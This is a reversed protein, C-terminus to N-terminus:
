ISQGIISELYMNLHISDGEHQQLQLSNVENNVSFSIERMINILEESTIDRSKPPYNLALLNGEETPFYERGERGGNGLIFFRTVGGIKSEKITRLAVFGDEVSPTASSHGHTHLDFVIRSSVHLMSKHLQFFSSVSTEDGKIIYLELKSKPSDVMFFRFESDIKSLSFILEVLKNIDNLNSIDLKYVSNEPAEEFRSKFAGTNEVALNVIQPEKIIGNNNLFNIITEQEKESGVLTKIGDKAAFLVQSEHETDFVGLLLDLLKKKDYASIGEKSALSKLASVTENRIIAWKNLLLESKIFNPDLKDLGGRLVLSYAAAAYNRPVHTPYKPVFGKYNLVMKKLADFSKESNYFGLVEAANRSEKEDDVFLYKIIAEELKENEFVPNGERSNEFLHLDYLRKLVGAPRGLGRELLYTYEEIGEFDREYENINSYDPLTRVVVLALSNNGGFSRLFSHIYKKNKGELLLYDTAQRMMKDLVRGPSLESDVHINNNGSSKITMWLEIQTRIVENGGIAVLAAEIDPLFGEYSVFGKHSSFVLNGALIEKQLRVLSNVTKENGAKPGIDTLLKVSRILMEETVEPGIILPIDGMYYIQEKPHRIYKDIYEALKKASAEGAEESIFKLQNERFILYRNEEESEVLSEIVAGIALNKSDPWKKAIEILQDNAFLGGKKGARGLIQIIGDVVNKEDVGLENMQKVINNANYKAEFYNKPDGDYNELEQIAEKAEPKAKIVNASSHEISNDKEVVIQKDVQKTIEIPKNGMMNSGMFFLVHIIGAVVLSAWFISREKFSREYIIHGRPNYGLQNKQNFKSFAEQLIEEDLTLKPALMNQACIGSPSFHQVNDILGVKQFLLLQIIFIALVKIIIKHKKM